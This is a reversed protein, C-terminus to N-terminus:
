VNKLHKGYTPKVAFIIPCSGAWIIDGGLILFKNYELQGFNLDLMMNLCICNQEIFSPHRREPKAIGRIEVTLDLVWDSVYGPFVIVLPFLCFALAAGIIDQLTFNLTFAPL